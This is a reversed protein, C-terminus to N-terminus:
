DSNYNHLLVDTFYNRHQIQLDYHYCYLLHKPSRDMRLFNILYTSPLKESISIESYTFHGFNDPIQLKLSNDDNEFILKSPGTALDSCLRIAYGSAM